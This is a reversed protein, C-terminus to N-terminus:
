VSESRLKCYYALQSRSESEITDLPEELSTCGDLDFRYEFGVVRDFKIDRRPWRSIMLFSAFRGLVIAALSKDARYRAGRFLFYM